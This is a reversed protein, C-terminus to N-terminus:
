PWGGNTQEDRIRISLEGIGFKKVAEHGANCFRREQGTLFFYFFRTTGSVRTFSLFKDKTSKGWLTAQLQGGVKINSNRLSWCPKYVATRLYVIINLIVDKCQLIRKRFRSHREQNTTRKFLLFICRSDYEHSSHSQCLSSVTM